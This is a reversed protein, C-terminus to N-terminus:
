KSQLNKLDEVSLGLLALAKSVQDAKKDKKVPELRVENRYKLDLQRQKAEGEVTMEDLEIDLSQKAGARYSQLFTIAEEVKLIWAMREERSVQDIRMVEMRGFGTRRARIIDGVPIRTPKVGFLITEEKEQENETMRYERIRKAPNCFCEFVPKHPSESNDSFEHLLTEIHRIQPITRASLLWRFDSQTVIGPASV